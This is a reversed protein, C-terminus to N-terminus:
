AVPRPMRNIREGQAIYRIQECINTTHDGIRELNKAVFLLDICSSINRADEMMYTLLERFLGEYMRDVEDDRHWVALAQEGNRQVYADLADKIMAQVLQGMRPIAHLPRV